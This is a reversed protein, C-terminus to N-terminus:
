RWGLATLMNRQLFTGHRRFAANSPPLAMIMRYCNGIHPLHQQPASPM